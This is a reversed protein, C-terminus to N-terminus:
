ILNWEEFCMLIMVVEFKTKFGLILIQWANERLFHNSCAELFMTFTKFTMLFKTKIRFMNKWKEALFSDSSENM